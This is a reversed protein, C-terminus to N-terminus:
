RPATRCTSGGPTGGSPGIGRRPGRPPAPGSAPEPARPGVNARARPRGIIAGSPPAAVVMTRPRPLGTRKSSATPNRTASATSRRSVSSGTGPTVTIVLVRAPRSSISRKDPADRAIMTSQRVRGFGTGPWTRRSVSFSTAPEARRTPAWSTVIAPPRRASAPRRPFGRRPPERCRASRPLATAQRRRRRERAQGPSRGGGRWRRGIDRCSEILSAGPAQCALQQEQGQNARLTM